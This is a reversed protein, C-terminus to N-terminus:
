NAVFAKAIEVHNALLGPAIHSNEIQRQTGNMCQIAKLILDPHMNQVSFPIEFIMYQDDAEIAAALIERDEKLQQDLTGYINYDEQCASRM